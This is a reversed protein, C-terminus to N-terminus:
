KEEARRYGTRRAASRGARIGTEWANELNFGGCPGDTDLIEGAFYIGPVLESEQTDSDIEVPPVGGRTIQAYDWGRLGSPHFTLGKIMRAATDAIEGAANKARETIWEALPRRVISRLLASGRQGSAERERIYRSIDEQESGPYLDLTIRYGSFGDKLTRGEPIEMFRSLDFVAIGSLGYETFQVEGEARAKIKGNETLVAASRQRVGRLSSVDEETVVATLAPALRTVTHGLSRAIRAGDGITGYAPGAKGGLAIIVSRAKVTCRRRDGSAGTECEIIFCSEPETGNKEAFSANATEANSAYVPKVCPDSFPEPLQMGEDSGQSRNECRSEPDGDNNCYHARRVSVVETCVAIEAGLRKLEDSLADRVDKADGSVPYIRGDEETRTLVGISRFFKITEAAGPIASNSLNCRGNGTALIKRGPEEKKELLIVSVGPASRLASIGAAMGSAGAGLVAIDYVESM